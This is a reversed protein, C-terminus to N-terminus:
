VRRSGTVFHSTPMGRWAVVGFAVAALFTVATLWPTARAVVAALTVIWLSMSLVAPMGVALRGRDSIHVVMGIAFASLAAVVDAAILWAAAGTFFGIVALVLLGVGIGYSATHVM